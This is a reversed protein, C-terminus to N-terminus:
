YIFGKVKCCQSFEWKWSKWLKHLKSGKNQQGGLARQDSKKSLYCWLKDFLKPVWFYVIEQGVSEVLITSLNLPTIWLSDPLLPKQMCVYEPFRM